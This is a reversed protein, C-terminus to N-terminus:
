NRFICTIEQLIFNLHYCKQFKDEEEAEQHGVEVAVAAAAAAVAAVPRVAEVQSPVVAEQVEPIM